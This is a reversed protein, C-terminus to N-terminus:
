NKLYSGWSKAMAFPLAISPESAMGLLTPTPCESNPLQAWGPTSEVGTQVGARCPSTLVSEIALSLHSTRPSAWTQMKSRCKRNADEQTEKVERHGSDEGM